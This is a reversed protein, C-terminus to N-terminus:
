YDWTRGGTKSIVRCPNGAAVAGDPIDNMVVSGAGIIVDNGITVGPLIVSNGGIWVNDGIMVPLAWEFGLNRRRIDMPPQVTYIGVNPAIQVNNGITVKGADVITLNIDASFNDGVMIQYGYSCYFPAEVQIKDGTKGLLKRILDQRYDSMEPNTQNYEKTVGKAHNREANLVPDDARYLIGMLMKQKETM